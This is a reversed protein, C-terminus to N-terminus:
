FNSLKGMIGKIGRSMETKRRTSGGVQRTADVLWIGVNNDDDDDGKLTM